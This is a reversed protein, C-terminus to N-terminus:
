GLQMGSWELCQWGTATDPDARLVIRGTNPLYATGALGPTTEGALRAGVLRLAAGHSVLVVAGDQSGSVIPRLAALFRDIVQQGTEGGPLPHDLDGAYWSAYVEEFRQLDALGDRGELEGLFAEQVGDVIHVPLGHRAAVPAATQQARTATSAYVAVVPESVLDDALDEAQRRGEATLPLGPPASDLVRRANAESEAHRVLFLRLDSM